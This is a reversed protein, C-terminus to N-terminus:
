AKRCRITKGEVHFKVPLFKEIVFINTRTHNTIKGVKICSEGNEAALAMFPLLQDEAYEDVAGDNKIQELLNNAAEEGVYEASKKMEGLGDAGFITSDTKAFMEIGSGPNSTNYYEVDIAAKMGLNKEIIERARRAQREAVKKDELQTSAHSIGYIGTIAGTRDINIPSIVSPQIVTETIAGGKPYYGYKDIKISCRYNMKELHNLLVERMFHVPPAWKGNTAGGNIKVFINDKIHSAAILVPQLVLGVSGATSISVDVGGFRMKGPNFDIETSNLKNGHVEANCLNKIVDVAALHQTQLGPNPRNKRINKIKCQKGTVASLAVATRIVQGGGEGVSGDIEIM